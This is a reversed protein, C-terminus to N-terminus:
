LVRRITQPSYTNFVQEFNTMASDSAFSSDRFVAYYPQRKAIETVTATDVRGFNAMLYNPDGEFEVSILDGDKAIKCSLPIGLELMVQFLLDEHSRDPKINDTFGDLSFQMQAYEEPTYYVDKMNSSDLKLVRFGIDLDQANLGAEDKIKQGARRTREKGIEPITAYGAKAAESKEDCVEPIQVMIFKRKGGDEANLQMVAHATTASGSFFDLVFGESPLNAAILADKVAEPAKPFDFLKVPGFLNALTRTGNDKASYESKDWWTRPLVGSENLYNRIYIEYGTATKKVLYDDITSNAREISYKWVRETGEPTLPLLEIETEKLTETIEYQQKDDSWLIKPIRLKNTETNLIIPYFQKPRDKRYSDTGTKRFNHWEFFGKEDKEKYRAKQNDNHAMM